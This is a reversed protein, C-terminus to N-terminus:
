KAFTTIVPSQSFPQSGMSPGWHRPVEISLQQTFKRRQKVNHGYAGVIKEEVYELIKARVPDPLQPAVWMRNILTASLGSAKHNARLLAWTTSRCLGLARAQEDLTYFGSAMLAQRLEGIRTCQKSKMEALACPSGMQPRCEAAKIMVSVVKTLANSSM